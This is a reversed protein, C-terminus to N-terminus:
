FDFHLCVFLVLLNKPSSLDELIGGGSSVEDPSSSSSVEDPSSAASSVAASAANSLGVCFIYRLRPRCSGGLLILLILSLVARLFYSTHALFM